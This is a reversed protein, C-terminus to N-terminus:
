DNASVYISNVKKGNRLFFFAPKLRKLKKKSVFM